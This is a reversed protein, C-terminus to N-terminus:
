QGARVCRINLGVYANQKENSGITGTEFERSWAYTTRAVVTTSSWYISPYAVESNLINQFVPDIAPSSRLEDVLSRLENTNPLRWGGGDLDLANCYSIAALWKDNKIVDSNDSYNDQWELNSNSDTVVGGDSRSFDAFILSSLGLVIIFYRKM